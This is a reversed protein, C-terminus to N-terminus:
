IRRIQAAARNIEAAVRAATFSQLAPAAEAEGADVIETYAQRIVGVPTASIEALAAVTDIRELGSARDRVIKGFAVGVSAGTRARQDMTALADIADTSAFPVAEFYLGREDEVLKTTQGLQYRSTEHRWHIEVPAGKLSRLVGSFAGPKFMMHRLREEYPDLYAFEVGTVAAYGRLKVTGPDVVEIQSRPTYAM